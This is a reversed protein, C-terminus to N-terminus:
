RFTIIRNYIFNCCTYVVNGILTAIGYGSLTIGLIYFELAGFSSRNLLWVVLFQIGYCLVFACFFHIAQVSIRGHSRFVWSRNWIFSNILGAVYGIANSFYPNLGLVSKCLFILGLTILTNMVGVIGYKLLQIFPRESRSTKTSTMLM